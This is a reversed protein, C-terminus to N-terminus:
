DLEPATDFDLKKVFICCAAIFALLLVIFYLLSARLPFIMERYYETYHLAVRTHAMPFIWMAPSKLLSLGSGFAIISGATLIGLKKLGFSHFLLLVMALVLLYLAILGFAEWAATFPPTQNYLNKTILSSAFDNAKQPYLTAYKTVVLSWGDDWFATRIVPLVAGAFVVSLFTLVSFVAFVIQGLLWNLKGVRLVFFLTSGDNRPFDSMLVLYTIPIMIMILESNGIAIFPELANLPSNMTYSHKLLPLIAFNYIFIVMVGLIVVRPNATWKIYETRAVSFIKNAKIKNVATM